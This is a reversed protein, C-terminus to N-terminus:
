ERRKEILIFTICYKRHQIGCRGAPQQVESQYPRRHKIRSAPPLTIQNFKQAAAAAAAAAAALAGCLLWFSIRIFSKM